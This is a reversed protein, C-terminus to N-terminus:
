FTSALNSSQCAAAFKPVLLSLSIILCSNKQVAKEPHSNNEARPCNITLLWFLLLNGAFQNNASQDIAPAFVIALALHHIPRVNPEEGKGEESKKV